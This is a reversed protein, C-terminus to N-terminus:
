TRHFNPSIRHLSIGIKHMLVFLKQLFHRNSSVAPHDFQVGAVLMRNGMLSEVQSSNDVGIVGDLRLTSSASLLLDGLITNNPAYVLKWEKIEDVHQAANESFIGNM